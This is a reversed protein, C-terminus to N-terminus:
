FRLKRQALAIKADVLKLRLQQKRTQNQRRTHPKLFAKAPKTKEKKKKGGGLQIWHIHEVSAMKLDKDSLGTKAWQAALGAGQQPESRCTNIKAKRKEWRQEWTESLTKQHTQARRLHGPEAKRWRPQPPAWNSPSSPQYELLFQSPWTPLPFGLPTWGPYRAWRFRGPSGANRPTPSPFRRWGTLQQPVARHLM